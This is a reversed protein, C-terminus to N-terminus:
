STASVGRPQVERCLSQCNVAGKLISSAFPFLFAVWMMGNKFCSLTQVTIEFRLTTPVLLNCYKADAIDCFLYIIREM